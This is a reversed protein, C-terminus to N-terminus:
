PSDDDNTLIVALADHEDDIDPFVAV